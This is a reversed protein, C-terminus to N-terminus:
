MVHSRLLRFRLFILMFFFSNLIRSQRTITAPNSGVAANAAPYTSILSVLKGSAFNRLKTFSFNSLFLSLIRSAPSIAATLIISAFLMPMLLKSPTPNKVASSVSFHQSLSSVPSSRLLFVASFSRCHEFLLNCDSSKLWFGFRVCNYQPLFGSVVSSRLLFAFNFTNFQLPKAFLRM